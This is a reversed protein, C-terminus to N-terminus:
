PERRERSNKTLRKRILLFLICPWVNMILLYSGFTYLLFASTEGFYLEIAERNPMKKYGRIIGRMRLLGYVSGILLYVWVYRNLM